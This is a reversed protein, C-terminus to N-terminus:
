LLGELTNDAAGLPTGHDIMTSFVAAAVVCTASGGTGKPTHPEPSM